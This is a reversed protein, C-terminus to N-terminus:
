RKVAWGADSMVEAIAAQLDRAVIGEWSRVWAFLPRGPIGRGGALARTRTLRGPGQAESLVDAFGRGQRAASGRLRSVSSGRQLTNFVEAHRDKSGKGRPFFTMPRVWAVSSRRQVGFMLRNRGSFGGRKGKVIPNSSIARLTAGTHVWPLSGGKRAAWEPSNRQWPASRLRKELGGNLAYRFAAAGLRRLSRVDSSAKEAEPLGKVRVRSAM